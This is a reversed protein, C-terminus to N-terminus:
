FSNEHQSNQHLLINIYILLKHYNKEYNSKRRNINKRSFFLFQCIIFKSLLNQVDENLIIIIIINTLNISTVHRHKNFDNIKLNIM